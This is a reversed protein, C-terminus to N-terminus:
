FFKLCSWVDYVVFVYSYIFYMQSLLFFFIQSMFITGCTLSFTFCSDIQMSFWLWLSPQLNELLWHSFPFRVLFKVCMRFNHKRSLYSNKSSLHFYKIYIYKKIFSIWGGPQFIYLTAKINYVWQFYLSYKM